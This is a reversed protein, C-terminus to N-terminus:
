FRFIQNIFHYFYNPNILIPISFGYLAGLLHADHNINDSGRRSMYHSYAIYAIGFIFAPIPIPILLLAISAKPALLIYAFLVASVGGSAGISNYWYDNKHKFLSTLSAVIIGGFYLLIYAFVGLASEVNGGFFFLTIMNFILHTWDAHFFGHSILRYWQKNHYVNYANLQYKNMLEPRSFAVISIIATAIITIITIM